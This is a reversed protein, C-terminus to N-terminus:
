VANTASYELLWLNGDRDFTGGTPAWPYPTRAVVAARGNRDVRKVNGGAHDAVYVNGRGDLWLGMLRHRSGIWIRLVNVDSLNRAVTAIRGDPMVRILDLTDIFYVTGEPSVTMWRIDRFKGRALVRTVGNPQRVRIADEHARDALY